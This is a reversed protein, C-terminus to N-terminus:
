PVVSTTGQRLVTPLALKEAVQLTTGQYLVYRFCTKGSAAAPSTTGRYLAKVAEVWKL